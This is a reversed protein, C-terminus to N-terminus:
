NEFPQEWRDIVLAEVPAKESHPRLGFQEEIATCISIEDVPVLGGHV